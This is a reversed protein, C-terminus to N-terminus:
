EDLDAETEPEAKTERALSAKTIEELHGLQLEVRAM